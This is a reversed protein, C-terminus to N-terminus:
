DSTPVYKFISKLKSVYGEIARLAQVGSASADQNIGTTANNLESTLEDFRNYDVMTSKINTLRNNLIDYYRLNIKNCYEEDGVDKLEKLELSNEKDLEVLQNNFYQEDSSFKQILLQQESTLDYINMSNMQQTQGSDQNVQATLMQETSYAEAWARRGEKSMNKLKKVEELSLNAKENLMKNVMANKEAESMEKNKLKQTDADSLGYEKAFHKKIQGQSNNINTEIAQEKLDLENLLERDVKDIKGLYNDKQEKTMLCPNNPLFPIKSLFVNTNTQAFAFTSFIGLLIITSLTKM